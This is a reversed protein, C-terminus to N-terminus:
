AGTPLGSETGRGTGHCRINGYTGRAGTRYKRGAVEAPVKLLYCCRLSQKYFSGLAESDERNASVIGSVWSM